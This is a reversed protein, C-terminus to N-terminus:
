VIRDSRTLLTSRAYMNHLLFGLLLVIDAIVILFRSRENRLKEVYAM